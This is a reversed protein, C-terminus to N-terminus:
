EATPHALVAALEECEDDDIRDAILMAIQYAEGLDRAVYGFAGLRLTNM